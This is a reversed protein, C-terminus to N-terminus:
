NPVSTLLVLPTDVAGVIRVSGRPRTNAAATPALAAPAFRGDRNALTEPDEGPEPRPKPLLATQSLPVPDSAVHTATVSITASSRCTCAKDLTSLHRFATPLSTYLKGELSLMEAPGEGSQAHYYLEADGAPCMQRCTAQDAALHERTTSYSIPFYYGDCSRVCLTRYTGGAPRAASRRERRLSARVRAPQVGAFRPQRPAAAIRRGSRCGRDILLNHIPSTDRGSAQLQMMRMELARCTDARAPGGGALVVAGALASLVLGIRM